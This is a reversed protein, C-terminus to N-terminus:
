RELCFAVTTLEVEQLSQNQIRATWESAGSPGSALLPTVADPGANVNAGGSVLAEKADADCSATAEGLAGPAVRVSTTRQNVAKLEGNGVSGSRLEEEQVAGRAIEARGVSGKAIAKRDAAGKALAKTGVAGAAIAREGVSGKALDNAQVKGRGPLAWAGGGMALVLASVAVLMAGSPRRNAKMM